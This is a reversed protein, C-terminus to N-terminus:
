ISLLFRFIDIRVRRFALSAFSSSFPMERRSTEYPNSRFDRPSAPENSLLPGTGYIRGLDQRDETANQGYLNEDLNLRGFPLDAHNAWSTYKLM